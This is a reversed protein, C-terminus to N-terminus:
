DRPSPSTYLLCTCTHDCGDQVGLFARTHGWRGPAWPSPAASKGVILELARAKDVNPVVWVVGPIQRARAVDETAWCGLVALRAAPNRHHFTHLRHRSKRAAQATVACSNLVIVDARVPKDVVVCGAGAFHRALVEMEAANLRCGLSELYVYM